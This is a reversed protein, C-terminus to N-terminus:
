AGPIAPTGDIDRDQPGHQIVLTEVHQINIIASGLTLKHEADKSEARSAVTDQMQRQNLRPGPLSASSCSTRRAGSTRPSGLGPRASSEWRGPSASCTRLWATWGGSSTCTTASVPRTSWRSTAPCTPSNHPNGCRLEPLGHGEPCRGRMEMCGDETEELPSQVKEPAGEFMRLSWQGTSDMDYQGGKVQIAFRALDHVWLTYDVQQGERRYRFEYLGHGNLELDQLADFVRAEGGASPTRAATNRPVTRPMMKIGM